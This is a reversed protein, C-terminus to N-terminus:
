RFRGSITYCVKNNIRKFIEGNIKRLENLKRKQLLRGENDFYQPQPFYSLVYYKSYAFPRKLAVPKISMFILSHKVEDVYYDSQNIWACRITHMQEVLDVVQAAKFNYKKLTDKLRQEHIKFEYIYSLTDTIIELSVTKFDRDTFGVTFPAQKYLLKYSEEIKDLTKEHQFYYRTSITKPSCSFISVATVTLFIIRYINTLMLKLNQLVPSVL